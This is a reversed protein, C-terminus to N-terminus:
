GVIRFQKPDKLKVDSPVPLKAAAEALSGYSLTGQDAPPDGQQKGRPM